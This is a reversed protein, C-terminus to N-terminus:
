VCILVCFTYKVSPHLYIWFYVTKHTFIKCIIIWVASEYIYFNKNPHVTSPFCLHQSLLLFNFMTYDYNISEIKNIKHHIILHVHSQTTKSQFNLCNNDPTITTLAKRHNLHFPSSELHVTVIFKMNVWKHYFSLETKFWKLRMLLCINVFGKQSKM